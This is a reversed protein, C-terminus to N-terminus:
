SYPTGVGTQIGQYPDRGMLQQGGQVAGPAILAGPAQRELFNVGAGAPSVAGKSAAWVAAGVKPGYQAIVDKIIPGVYYGFAAGAFDGFQHGVAAGAVHAIKDALASHMMQVFKSTEPSSPDANPTSTKDLKLGLGSITSPGTPEVGTVDKSMPNAKFEGSLANPAQAIEKGAIKGEIAAAGPARAVNAADSAVSGFTKPGGMMLNALAGTGQPTVTGTIPGEALDLLGGALDRVGTPVALSMKGTLMNRQLPLISGTVVNPDTSPQIAARLAPMITDTQGTQPNPQPPAAPASPPTQAGTTPAAAGAPTQSLIASGAQLADDAAGGSPTSSASPTKGGLIQSGIDLADDSGGSPANRSKLGMQPYLQAARVAYPVTAPSNVGGQGGNYARLAAVPDGGNADLARRIYLAAAPIAQTMDTPDTMGYQAATKPMFQMGGLAGASSPKTNPDGGSEVHFITKLLQPDVNYHRGAADFMADYDNNM